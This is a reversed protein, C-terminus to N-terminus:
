GVPSTIWNGIYEYQWYLFPAYTLSIIPFRGYENVQHVAPQSKAYMRFTRRSAM